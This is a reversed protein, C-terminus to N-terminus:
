AARAANTLVAHAEPTLLELHSPNVCRRVGCRHHLHLGDPIPGIDLEWAVRHAYTTRGGAQKFQGYGTLFRGATWMWCSGEAGDKSVKRWFREELTMLGIRLPDGHLRWREYHLSCWGRALYPKECGAVSCTQPARVGLPSLPKGYHQQQYHGTCLGKALVDKTCGEFSCEDM